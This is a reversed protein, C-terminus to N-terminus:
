QGSRAIAISRYGQDNATGSLFAILFRKHVIASTTFTPFQHGACGHPRVQRQSWDRQQWMMEARGWVRRRTRSDTRKGDNSTMLVDPTTISRIIAAPQQERQPWCPDPAKSLQLGSARQPGEGERGGGRARSERSRLSGTAPGEVDELESQAGAYRLSVNAAMPGNATPRSSVPM